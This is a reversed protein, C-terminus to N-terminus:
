LFFSRESNSVSASFDKRDTLEGELGDLCLARLANKISDFERVEGDLWRFTVKGKHFKQSNDQKRTFFLLSWGFLGNMKLGM